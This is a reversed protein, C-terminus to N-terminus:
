SGPIYLYIGGIKPDTREYVSITTREGPAEDADLVEVNDPTDETLGGFRISYSPANEYESANRPLLVVVSLDDGKSLEAFEVPAEFEFEYTDEEDTPAVDFAYTMRVLNGDFESEVGDLNKFFEMTDNDPEEELALVTEVNATDPGGPADQFRSTPVIDVVTNQWDIAITPEDPFSAEARATADRKEDGDTPGPSSGPDATTCAALGMAMVLAFLM